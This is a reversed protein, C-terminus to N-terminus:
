LALFDYKGSFLLEQILDVRFDKPFQGDELISRGDQLREEFRVGGIPPRPLDVAFLFVGVRDTGRDPGTEAPRDAAYPPEYEIATVPGGPNLQRIPRYECVFPPSRQWFVM